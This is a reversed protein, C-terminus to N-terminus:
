SADTVDYLLRVLLIFHLSKPFMQLPELFIKKTM